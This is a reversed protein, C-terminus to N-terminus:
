NLSPRGSTFFPPKNVISKTLLSKDVRSDLSVTRNKSNIMKTDIAMRSCGLYDTLLVVKSKDKQVDVVIGTAGKLPGTIIEVLEGEIFPEEESVPEIPIKSENAQFVYHLEQKFKSQMEVPLVAAVRGHSIFDHPNECIFPVYSPFLVLLSKRYKGDSRLIKNEYYPLYYNIGMDYLDSAFAKEQRSKVHAIWWTGEQELISSAFPKSLPNDKLPIIPM